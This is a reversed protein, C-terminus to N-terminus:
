RWKCTLDVTNYVINLLIIISTRFSWTNYNMYDISKSIYSYILPLELESLLYLLTLTDDLIIYPMKPKHSENSTFLLLENHKFQNQRFCLSIFNRFTSLVLYM